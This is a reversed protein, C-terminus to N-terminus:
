NQKMFIIWHTQMYKGSKHGFLPKQDTLALIEKVPINSENWKFVLFGDKKLVRFCEKFGKRLMDKWDGNLHGYKITLRGLPKDRVVHPPDFVVLNFRNSPQKINTFDGIEDPQIKETYNGSPYTLHHVENRKDLFLTLENQKDFWIGRPGCCVDLIKKRM